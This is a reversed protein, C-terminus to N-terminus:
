LARAPVNLLQPCSAVQAYICPPLLHSSVDYVMRHRKITKLGEFADSVLDVKFHTEGSYGPQMRSGVHGAHQSSEDLVHLSVPQLAETLKRRMSDQVPTTSSPAAAAQASGNSSPSAGNAAASRPESQQAGGAGDTGPADASGSVAAQASASASEVAAAAAPASSAEASGAQATLTRM